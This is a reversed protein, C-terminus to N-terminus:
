KSLSKSSHPMVFPNEIVVHSPQFLACVLFMGFSLDWKLWYNLAATCFLATLVIINVCSIKELFDFSSKQLRQSFCSSLMSLVFWSLGEIVDIEMAFILAACLLLVFRFLAQEMMQDFQVKRYALLLVCGVTAFYIAPAFQHHIMYNVVLMLGFGCSIREMKM